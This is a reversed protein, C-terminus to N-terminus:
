SSKRKKRGPYIDELLRWMFIDAQGDSLDHRVRGEFYLACLAPFALANLAYSEPGGYEAGGVYGTQQLEELLDEPPIVHRLASSADYIDEPDLRANDTLAQHFTDYVIRQAPKSLSRLEDSAALLVEDDRCLIRTCIADVEAPSMLLLGLVKEPSIIEVPWAKDVNLKFHSNISDLRKKHREMNFCPLVWWEDVKTVM